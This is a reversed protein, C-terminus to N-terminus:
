ESAENDFVCSRDSDLSNLMNSLEKYEDDQEAIDIAGCEQVIETQRKSCWFSLQEWAEKFDRNLKAIQARSMRSTLCRMRKYEYYIENWRKVQYQANDTNLEDEKQKQIEREKEKQAKEFEQRALTRQLEVSQRARKQKDIKTAAIAIAGVLCATTLIFRIIKGM